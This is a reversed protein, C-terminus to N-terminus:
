ITVEEKEEEEEEDYNRECFNRFGHIEEKEDKNCNGDCFGRITGHCTARYSYARDYFIGNYDYMNDCMQLMKHKTCRTMANGTLASRFGLERGRLLHVMSSCYKDM